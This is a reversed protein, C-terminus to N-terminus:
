VEVETQPAAIGKKGYLRERIPEPYRTGFLYDLVGSSTGFGAKMGRKTHHYM